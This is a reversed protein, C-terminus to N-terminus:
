QKTFEFHWNGTVNGVRANYPATSFTFDMVLTTETVSYVISVDVNNPDKRILNQKVNAGFAMTGSAPWPSPKGPPRNAVEFGMQEDGTEGTLIVQFDGYDLDTPTNGDLTFATTNWTGNLLQIQKDKDSLEPDNDPGCGIYLSALATLVLLSLIRSAFKM